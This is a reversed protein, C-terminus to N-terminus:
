SASVCSPGCARRVNAAGRQECEDKVFAVVDAPTARGLRLDDAPRTALFLRAIRVDLAVTGASLGREEVLFTRSARLCLEAATVAVPAIPVLIAGLGRLYGVLPAIGKASLWL